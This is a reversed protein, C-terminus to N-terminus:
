RGALRAVVPAFAEMAAVPIVPYTIGFRERREELTDAIRDVTGLLLHPSELARMPDGPVGDAVRRVAAAVDDTVETDHIIVNLELGDWRVGAGTRVWGVREALGSGAGVIADWFGGREDVGVTATLSVIDARGAALTLMKRGSGALLLPPHPRQAPVPGGGDLDVRYHRGAYPFPDGSWVGALVDLAEELREIRIGGRDLTMGVADYDTALWGTGIGLELRGGTLVDVTAAEMAVLAPHRFDNGLVLTGVRLAPAAEAVAVLAPLPALRPGVHDSVVFTEYGLSVARRALDRWDLDREALSAFAGFRFPRDHPSTV